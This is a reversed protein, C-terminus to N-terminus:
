NPFSLFAASLCLLWSSYRLFLPFLSSLPNWDLRASGRLGLSLFSQMWVSGLDGRKTKFALKNYPLIRSLTRAEVKRGLLLLAHTQACTYLLPASPLCPQLTVPSTTRISQGGQLSLAQSLPGPFSRAEGKGARLYRLVNCGMMESYQELCRYLKM